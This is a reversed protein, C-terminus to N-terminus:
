THGCAPAWALACLSVKCLDGTDTTVNAWARLMGSHISIHPILSSHPFGLAGMAMHCSLNDVIAHTYSHNASSVRLRVGRVREEGRVRVRVHVIYMGYYVHSPTPSWIWTLRTHTLNLSDTSKQTNLCCSRLFTRLANAWWLSSM